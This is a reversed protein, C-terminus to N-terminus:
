NVPIEGVIQTIIESWTCHYTAWINGTDKKVCIDEKGLITDHNWKGKKQPKKITTATQKSPESGNNKKKEKVVASLPILNKEKLNEEENKTWYGIWVNSAIVKLSDHIWKCKDKTAININIIHLILM